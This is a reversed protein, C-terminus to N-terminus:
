NEGNLSHKLQMWTTVTIREVVEGVVEVGDADDVVVKGFTRQRSPGSATNSM